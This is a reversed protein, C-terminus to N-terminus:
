TCTYAIRQPRPVANPSSGGYKMELAPKKYKYKNKKEKEYIAIGKEFQKKKRM